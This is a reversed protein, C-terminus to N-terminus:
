EDPDSDGLEEGKAHHIVVSANTARNTTPLYIVRVEYEGAEIIQPTFRASKKGQRSEM